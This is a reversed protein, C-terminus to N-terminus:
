WKALGVPLTNSDIALDCAVRVKVQCFLVSSMRVGLPAILQHPGDVFSEGFPTLVESHSLLEETRATPM